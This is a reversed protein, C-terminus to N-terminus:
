GHTFKMDEIRSEERSSGWCFEISSRNGPPGLPGTPGWETYYTGYLFITWTTANLITNEAFTETKFAVGGNTWSYGSFKYWIEIKIYTGTVNYESCDWTVNKLGYQLRYWYGVEIVNAGSICTTGVYIKVGLYGKLCYEPKIWSRYTSIDTNNWFLKWYTADWKANQMYRIREDITVNFPESWDSWVDYSDKARVKVSHTGPCLWAHSLSANEGSEFAETTNTTGDGWDFQYTVNDGNLDATSTTYDYMVDLYGFEPGSPQSPVDPPSNVRITPDGLLIIKKYAYESAPLSPNGTRNEIMSNYMTKFAEGICEHQGLREFAESFWSAPFSGGIADTMGIATLGKGEGFIACNAVCNEESFVAAGCPGLIYFFTKPAMELYYYDDACGENWLQWIWKNRQSQNDWQWSYNGFSHSHSYISGHGYVWTWEYSDGLRLRDRYDTGNTNTANLIPSAILTVDNYAKELCDVTDNVFREDYTRVPDEVYPDGVVIAPDNDVYALARQKAVSARSSASRYQHNKAFYDMFLQTENLPNHWYPDVVTSAILRGVWIEPRIHGTHNDYKGNPPTDTDTWTGNLDMYYYDTYYSTGNEWIASPFDGILLCGKIQHWMWRLKIQYRVVEPTEATANPSFITKNSWGESQIDAVYADIAQKVGGYYLLEDVYILIDFDLDGKVPWFSIWSLCMVVSLLLVLISRLIIKM